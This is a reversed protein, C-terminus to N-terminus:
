TVGTGDLDFGSGERGRWVTAGLRVAREALLFELQHQPIALVHLPSRLLGLELTLPGFPIRPPRVVRLRTGRLLKRRRLELAARGVVGNGKPTQVPQAARDLVAVRVSAAALDGALMLGTPGAGVVVVDPIAPETQAPM